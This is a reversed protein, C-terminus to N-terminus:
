NRIELRQQKIFSCHILINVRQSEREREHYSVVTGHMEILWSHIDYGWDLILNITEYDQPSLKKKNWLVFNLLPGEMEGRTAVDAGHELLQRVTGVQGMYAAIHLPTKPGVPSDDRRDVDAGRALLLKVIDLHGGEAARHLATAGEWELWRACANVDVKGTDLSEEIAQLDGSISAHFFKAYEPTEPAWIPPPWSLQM